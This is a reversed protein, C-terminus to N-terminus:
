EITLPLSVTGLGGTEDIAVVFLWTTGPTGATYTTSSTELLEPELDEVAISPDAIEGSPSYLHCTVEELAEDDMEPTDLSSREITVALTYRRGAQLVQTATGDFRVEVIRPNQREHAEEVVEVDRKAVLTRGDVDVEAIVPVRLAIGAALAARWPDPVEAPSGPPSPFRAALEPASMVFHGTEDRELPVADTGVCDRAPDVVFKWPACARARVADVPRAGSGVDLSESRPGDADVTMVALHLAGDPVLASPDATIALVRPSAIKTVPDVADDSCAIFATAVLLVYLNPLVRV